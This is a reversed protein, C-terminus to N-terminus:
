SATQYSRVREALRQLLQWAVDPHEHVFPKFNWQSLVWCQVEGDAVIRAGRSGNTLLAMEGFYDGPGLTGAPEGKVSVSLTGDGVLFFGVGGREETSVESGPEFRRERLDDALRKRARDDLSAFLDIRDITEAATPM